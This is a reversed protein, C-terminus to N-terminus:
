DGGAGDVAAPALHALEGRLTELEALQQKMRDQQAQMAEYKQRALMMILLQQDEASPVAAGEAPEGEAGRAVALEAAAAATEDEPQKSEEVAVAVGAREARRRAVADLRSQIAEWRTQTRQARAHFM